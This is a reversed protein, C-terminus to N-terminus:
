DLIKTKGKKIDLILDFFDYEDADVISMYTIIIDNDEIKYVFNVQFTQGKELDCILMRFVKSLLDDPISRNYILFLEIMNNFARKDCVNCLTNDIIFISNPKKDNYIKEVTKAMFEFDHHEIDKLKKKFPFWNFYIDHKEEGNYIIGNKGSTYGLGVNLASNNDVLEIISMRIADLAINSLSYAYENTVNISEVLLKCTSPNAIIQHM